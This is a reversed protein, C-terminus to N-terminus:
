LGRYSVTGKLEKFLTMFQDQIRSIIGDEGMYGQELIELVKLGGALAPTTASFTGSILGPRPKYEETFFTAALQLGKGM